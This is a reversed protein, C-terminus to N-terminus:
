SSVGFGSTMVTQRLADRSLLWEASPWVRATQETLPGPRALLDYDIVLLTAAGAWLEVIGDVGALHRLECYLICRELYWTLSSQSSKWYTNLYRKCAPLINYQSKLSSAFMYLICVFFSSLIIDIFNYINIHLYDGQLSLASKLFVDADSSSPSALFWCPRTEPLLGHKLSKKFCPSVLNSCPQSFKLCHTSFMLMTQGHINSLFIGTTHTHAHMHPLNFVPEWM